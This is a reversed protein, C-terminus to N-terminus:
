SKHNSHQRSKNNTKLIWCDVAVPNM